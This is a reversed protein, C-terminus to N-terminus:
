WRSSAGPSNNQEMTPRVVPAPGRLTVADGDYEANSADFVEARTPFAGRARLAMFSKYAAKLAPDPALGSVVVAYRSQKSSTNGIVYKCSISRPGPDGINSASLWAITALADARKADYAESTTPSAAKVVGTAWALEYVSAIDDIRRHASDLVGDTIGAQTAAAILETAALLASAYARFASAEHGLTCGLYKVWAAYWVAVDTVGRLAEMGGFFPCFADDLTDVFTAYPTTAAGTPAVPPPVPPAAFTVRRVPVLTPAGPTPAGPTPAGPRPAGPRPAGPRPANHSMRGHRATVAPRVAIPCPAYQRIATRGPEEGIRQGTDVREYPM